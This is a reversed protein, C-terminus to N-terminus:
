GIGAQALAIGGFIAALSLVFALLHRAQTRHVERLTHTQTTPIPHL